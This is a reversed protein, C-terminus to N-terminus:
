APGHTPPIFFGGELSAEPDFGIRRQSDPEVKPLGKYLEDPNQPQPLSARWDKFKKLETTEGGYKVQLFLMTSILPFQPYKVMTRSAMEVTAETLGCLVEQTWDIDEAAIGEKVMIAKIELWIVGPPSMAVLTLKRFADRIQEAWQDVMEQTLEPKPPTLLDAPPELLGVYAAFFDAATWPTGDDHCLPEGRKLRDMLRRDTVGIFDREAVAANFQGLGRFFNPKPTLRGSMCISVQSAWPGCTWGKSRALGESVSQPWENRAFWAKVIPGLLSSNDETLTGM